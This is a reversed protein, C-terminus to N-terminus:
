SLKNPTDAWFMRFNESEVDTVLTSEVMKRKKVRQSTCFVKGLFEKIEGLL